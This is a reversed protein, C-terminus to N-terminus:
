FCKGVDNARAREVLYQSFRDGSRVHPVIFAFSGVSINLHIELRSVMVTAAPIDRERKRLPNRARFLTDSDDEERTIVRNPAASTATTAVSSCRFYSPNM